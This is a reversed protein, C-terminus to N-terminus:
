SRPRTRGAMSRVAITALVSFLLGLRLDNWSVVAVAVAFLVISRYAGSTQVNLITVALLWLLAIAGARRPATIGGLLTAFMASRSVFDLRVLFAAGRTPDAHAVPRNGRGRWKILQPM